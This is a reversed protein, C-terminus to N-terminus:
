VQMILPKQWVPLPPLIATVPAAAVAAPAAVAAIVFSQGTRLRVGDLNRVYGMERAVAEVRESTEQSTLPSRKLARAVTTVSVGMREAIDKLGVNRKRLSM